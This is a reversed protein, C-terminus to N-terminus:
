LWYNVSDSVNGGYVLGSSTVTTSGGGTHWYFANWTKAGCIGDATISGHEGCTDLKTQATILEKRTNPGWDGDVTIQYGNTVICFAQCLSVAKTTASYGNGVYENECYVSYLALSRGQTVIQQVTPRYASYSVTEETTNTLENGSYDAMAPVPLACVALALVLLISIFRKKM